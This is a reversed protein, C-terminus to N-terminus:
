EYGGIYDPNLIDVSAVGIMGSFFVLAKFKKFFRDKFKELLKVNKEDTKHIDCLLIHINENKVHSLCCFNTFICRHKPGKLAGPYLHKYNLESFRLCKLSHKM